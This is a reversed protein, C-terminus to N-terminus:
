IVWKIVWIVFAILAIALKVLANKLEKDGKPKKREEYKEKIDWLLGAFSLVAIVLFANYGMM